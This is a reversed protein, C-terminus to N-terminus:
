RVGTCVLLVTRSYIQVRQNNLGNKFGKCKMQLHFNFLTNRIM